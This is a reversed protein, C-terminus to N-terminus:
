GTATVVGRARFVVVGRSELHIIRPSSLLYILDDGREGLVYAKVPAEEGVKLVESPLWPTSATSFIMQVLVGAVFIWYEFHTAGEQVSSPILPRGPRKRRLIWVLLAIIGSLGAWLVVAYAPIVALCITLGVIVLSASAALETRNRGRFFKVVWPVGVGVLTVMILPLTAVLGGVVINTTNTASLIGLATTTNWGSVALLRLILLLSVLGSVLLAPHERWFPRTTPTPTAESM